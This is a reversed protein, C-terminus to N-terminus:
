NKGEMIVYHCNSITESMFVDDEHKWQSWLFWCDAKWKVFKKIQAKLGGISAFM